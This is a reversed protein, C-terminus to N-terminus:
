LEGELIIYGDIEDLYVSYRSNLRDIVESDTEGEGAFDEITGIDGNFILNDVFVSARPVVPATEMYWSGGELSNLDRVLSFTLALALMGLFMRKKAM